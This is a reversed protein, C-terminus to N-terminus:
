GVMWMLAGILILLIAAINPQLIIGASDEDGDDSGGDDDDDDQFDSTEGGMYEEGVDTLDGDDDLLSVGDGTWENSDEERFAGFWAYGDVYDLGDLYNMSENLMAANVESDGQPVAMETIWLGKADEGGEGNNYFEHLTGIWNALGQFDGYYHVSVFDAPCGGDPEIDYCSENFDRLWELGRESGTVAPHSINWRRGDGTRLPALYELYAEAADGPSIGSGGNEKEEDPENFTFLHTSSSPLDDLASWLYDEELTDLGHVLPIFMAADGIVESPSPSWNFYWSIPSNSSTLLEADEDQLEGTVALGHKSTLNIRGDVVALLGASAVAALTRSKINKMADITFTM